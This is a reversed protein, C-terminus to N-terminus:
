SQGRKLDRLRIELHSIQEHAQSAQQRSEFEQDPPLVGGQELHDLVKQAEDFLYREEALAAEVEEVDYMDEAQKKMRM